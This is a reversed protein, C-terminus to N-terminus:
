REEPTLRERRDAEEDAAMADDCSPCLVGLMAHSFTIGGSGERISHCTCYDREVTVHM